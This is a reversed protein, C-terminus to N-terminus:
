QLVPHVRIFIGVIISRYPPAPLVPLGSSIVTMGDKLSASNRDFIAM